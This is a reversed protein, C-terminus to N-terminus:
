LPSFCFKIKKFQGWKTQFFELQVSAKLFRGFAEAKEEVAEKENASLASFPYIEVSVRDKKLSRQWIGKVKGDIVLIPKFIGNGVVAMDKHQPDLCAARDKYAIM